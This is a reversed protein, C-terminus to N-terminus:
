QKSAQVAGEEALHFIAFSQSRLDGRVVIEAVDFPLGAIQLRVDYQDSWFWPCKLRPCRVAVCIPRPRSPRSSRM